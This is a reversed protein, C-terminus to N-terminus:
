SQAIMKLCSRLNVFFDEFERVATENKDKNLVENICLGQNFSKDYTSRNLLIHIFVFADKFCDKEIIMQPAKEKQKDPVKNIVIGVPILRNQARMAKQLNPYNDVLVEIDLKNPLTPILVLDAYKMCTPTCEDFFCPGDIIIIDYTNIFTALSEDLSSPLPDHIWVVPLDLKDKRNKCPRYQAARKCAQNIDLDLIAVRYGAQAWM